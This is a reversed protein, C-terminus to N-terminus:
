EREESFLDVAEELLKAIHEWTIIGVVDAALGEVGAEKKIVVALAASLRHLRAVITDMAEDERVYIFDRRMVDAVSHWGRRETESASVAYNRPVVGAVIDDELVLLWGVEPHKAARLTLADLSDLSSVTVVKNLMIDRARRVHLLNVQLADPIYHARRALKMTYISERTFLTRTGYSLVVTITMPMIVSYDLTMEFIMVVATMAAGTAGGLMGAMGAVAFASPSVPAYPLLHRLIIGFVEGAAAGLFMSPSFIGGSGGSGLTLSTALLKLFFLMVLLHIASMNGTLIDQVTSYGVGEVYYHGTGLMLGYMM